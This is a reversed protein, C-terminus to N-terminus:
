KGNYQCQCFNKKNSAYCKFIQYFTEVDVLWYFYELNKGLLVKEVARDTSCGIARCHPM